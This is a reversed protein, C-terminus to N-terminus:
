RNSTKALIFFPLRTPPLFEFLPLAFTQKFHEPLVTCFVGLTLIPYEPWRTTDYAQACKELNRRVTFIRIGM